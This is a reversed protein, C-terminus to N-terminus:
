FLNNPSVAIKQIRQSFPLKTVKKPKQIVSVEDIAPTTTDTPPLASIHALNSIGRQAALNQPNLELVKEICYKREADSDVAGSLWLWTKENHKNLQLAHFLLERAAVKNGSKIAMIGQEILENTTAM